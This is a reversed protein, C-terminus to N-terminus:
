ARKVLTFGLGIITIILSIGSILLGARWHTPEFTFQVTHEGAPVPIARFAYNARLIPALVGNVTAKWGPYYTDALVLYGPVASDVAIELANERDAIIRAEGKGIEDEQGGENGEELVVEREPDFDEGLVTRLAAEGGEVIRSQAVFLARPQATRNRYIYTARAPVRVTQVQGDAGGFYALHDVPQSFPIEKALELESDEIPLDAVLFQVGQLDLSRKMEVPIGLIGQQPDLSTRMSNLAQQRELFLAVWERNAPLRYIMNYDVPLINQFDKQRVPDRVVAYDLNNTGHSYFRYRLSDLEQTLFEVAEHGSFWEEASVVKLVRKFNNFYLDVVVLLIVTASLFVKFFSRKTLLAFSKAKELRDRLTDFGFGALVALSFEIFFLIKVPFRFYKLGPVVEWLITFLQTSRGIGYVLSGILFITFIVVYRKRVVSAAFVALVLSVLGAYGYLASINVTTPALPHYGPEPAYLDYAGPNVFMILTRLPWVTASATELKVGEARQSYQTLEWTPLLQAASMGIGLTYMIIMGIVAPTLRKAPEEKFLFAILVFWAATLIATYFFFEIYGALIQLTFVVAGVFAWAFRRTTVLRETALFMLPLYAAVELLNIQHVHTLFFGSLAYVLGSLLAAWSSLRLSVRSFLATFVGALAFHLYINLHYAFATPFLRFLILHLPYLAGVQLEAFVPYGNGILNTWFPLQGSLLMGRYWDKFPYNFLWLDSYVVGTNLFVGGTLVPWFVILFLGFFFLAPAFREIKM